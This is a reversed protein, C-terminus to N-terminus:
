ITSLRTFIVTCHVSLTHKTVKNLSIINVTLAKLTETFYSNHFKHAQDILIGKTPTIKLLTPPCASEDNSFSTVVASM